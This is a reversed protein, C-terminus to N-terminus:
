MIQCVINFENYEAKDKTAKRSYRLEVKGFIKANNLDRVFKFIEGMDTGEGIMSFEKKKMYILRNITINVPVLKTLEYYYYLFSDKYRTFNKIEKIKELAEMAKENKREVLRVESTVKDLYNQRVYMKGMCIVLLIVLIYIATGGIVFLNKAMERVDKRLKVEPLVLNFKSSMPNVAIGLVASLSVSRTIEGAGKIAKLSPIVEQVEVFEVPMQFFSNIDRELNEREECIGSVYMMSLNEEKGARSVVMAQKLEGMFKSLKDEEKLFNDGTAISKSFLIQDGRFIFFDAFREGIDLCAKLQKDDHKAAKAKCLFSMIGFTSLLVNDPYLNLKEFASFQKILKLRHVIVLLINTFNASDKGTVVYDYIIEERAYPVEQTLHLSVIDDLEKEDKAPFKLNRLITQDRPVCLCLPKYKKLMKEDVISSVIKSLEEQSDTKYSKAFLGSIQVDTLISRGWVAKVQDNTIEFIIM